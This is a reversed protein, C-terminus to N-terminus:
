DKKRVAIRVTLRNLAGEREYELEDAIKRVLHIGLGGIPREEPPLRLDPPKASLPDFARGDDEFELVVHTGTLSAAFRVEHAGADAYAYRLINTFVEELVLSCDHVVDEPVAEDNLMAELEATASVLAAVDSPLVRELSMRDLYVRESM